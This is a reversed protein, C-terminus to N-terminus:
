NIREFQGDSQPHFATSFNLVIGFAEQMAKWSRLTFQTNKDSVILVLIGHLRIIEAVYLEMLQPLSLNVQMALFHASKTFRDM